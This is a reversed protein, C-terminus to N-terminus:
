TMSCKANGPLMSRASSLWLANEHKIWSFSSHKNMTQSVTNVIPSDRAIEWVFSVCCFCLLHSCNRASHSKKWRFEEPALVGVQFEVHVVFSFVDVLFRPASLVDSLVAFAGGVALSLPVSSCSIPIDSAYHSSIM